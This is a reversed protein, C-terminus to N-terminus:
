FPFMSAMNSKFLIIPFSQPLGIYIGAGQARITPDCKGIAFMGHQEQQVALAMDAMHGRAICSHAMCCCTCSALGWHVNLAASM